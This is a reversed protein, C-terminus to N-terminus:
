SKAHLKGEFREMISCIVDLSHEIALSKYKLEQNFSHKPISLKEFTQSLCLLAPLANDFRAYISIVDDFMECYHKQNRASQIHSVVYERHALLSNLILDKM